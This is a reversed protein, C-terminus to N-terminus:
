KKLFQLITEIQKITLHSRVWKKIFDIPNHDYFWQFRYYRDIRAQFRKRYSEIKEENPTWVPRGGYETSFLPIGDLYHESIQTNGKLYPEMLLRTKEENFPTVGSPDPNKRSLRLALPMLIKDRLRSNPPAVENFTRLAETVDFSTSLNEENKPISFSEDWPIGCAACFDHYIDGGQFTARNYRRVIVRANRNFAKKIDSLIGAYDMAFRSRESTCCEWLSENSRGTKIVQRWHSSFWDDQRRLYIVIVVNTAGAEESLKALSEWYVKLKNESRLISSYMSINEESLIVRDFRTLSESLKQFDNTFLDDYLNQTKGEAKKYCFNQIFFGNMQVFSTGRARSFLPFCVGHEELKERNDFLFRQLSTTGTKTTGIHLILEKM